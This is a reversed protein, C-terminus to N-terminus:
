EKKLYRLERFYFSEKYGTDLMIVAYNNYINLVTGKSKSMLKGHYNYKPISVRMGKEIKVKGMIKGRKIIVYKNIKQMLKEM